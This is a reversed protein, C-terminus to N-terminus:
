FLTKYKGIMSKETELNQDLDKFQEVLFITQDRVM